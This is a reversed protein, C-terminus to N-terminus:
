FQTMLAADALLFKQQWNSRPNVLLFTECLDLVSNQYLPLGLKGIKQVFASDHLSSIEGSPTSIAPFRHSIYVEDANVPSAM